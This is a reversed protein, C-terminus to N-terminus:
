KEYAELFKQAVLKADNQEEVLRRGNRSMTFLEERKDIFRILQQEFPSDTPSLPIIPRDYDNGLYDYYEPQAGSAAVRGQAMAYLANMAPSYSYFQDLVIDSKRMENLYTKLPLNSVTTVEVKGPFDKELNRAKTLLMKTGKQIEMGERIGIFLRLPGDKELPSYDLVRLDIPLNTFTLKDGLIERAAMDYEPLVSMAGDIKEYLYHSWDKNINSIWGYMHNPKADLFETPKDGIRFESFRFMRADNCAKVFFYDNGALSLFIKGNQEKIRDFFYKLKGPRLKLFNSNILQVADYGKIRPLLSFLDFLYKVGGFIGKKRELFIDTHSDLYGCRDSMVDAQHGMRRLQTALTAHMNSYDGIFLIKM